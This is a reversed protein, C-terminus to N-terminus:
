KKAQAETPDFWDIIVRGDISGMAFGAVNAGGFVYTFKFIFEGSIDSNCILSEGTWFDFFYM